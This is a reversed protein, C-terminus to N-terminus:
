RHAERAVFDSVSQLQTDDLAAIYAAAAASGDANVPFAGIRVTYEWSTTRRQDLWAGGAVIVLIATLIAIRITRWM